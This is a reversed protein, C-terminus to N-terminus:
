ALTVAVKARRKRWSAAGLFSLGLCSLLMSSPEPTLGGGGHVTGSATTVDVHFTISGSNHGTPPGPPAYSLATITYTNAGLVEVEKTAGLFTNTVNASDASFNGGLQGHFTIVATKNSAKDTLTLQLAYDGDAPNKSGIHEPSNPDAVSAVTLNTAVIDSNGTASGKPEDTFLVTGTGDDSSVARSIGALPEWNYLYAVKPAPVQDAQASPGAWFLLTLTPALLTLSRKM